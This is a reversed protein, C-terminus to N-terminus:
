WGYGGHARAHKYRRQRGIRRILFTLGISCVCLVGSAFFDAYRAIAFLTLAWVLQLMVWGASNTEASFKQLDWRELQYEHWFRNATVSMWEFVTQLMTDENRHEDQM